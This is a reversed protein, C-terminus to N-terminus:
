QVNLVLDDGQRVPTLRPLWGPTAPLEYIEDKAQDPSPLRDRHWKSDSLDSKKAHLAM